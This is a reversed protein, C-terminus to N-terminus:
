KRFTEVQESLETLEEKSLEPLRELRDLFAAITEKRREDILQMYFNAFVGTIIAIVILSYVTVAVSCLKAIFGHVIIDGFGTTSIVAYCYWLADGYSLIEPETVYVILAAVFVFILYTALVEHTRTQKLIRWLTKLRKGFRVRHEM